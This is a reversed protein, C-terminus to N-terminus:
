QIFAPPQNQIDLFGRGQRGTVHDQKNTEVLPTEGEGKVRKDRSEKPIQLHLEMKQVRVPDLM